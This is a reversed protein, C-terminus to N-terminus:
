LHEQWFYLTLITEVKRPDARWNGVVIMTRM